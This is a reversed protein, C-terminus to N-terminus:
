AEYRKKEAVANLGMATFHKDSALIGLGAGEPRLRLACIDADM